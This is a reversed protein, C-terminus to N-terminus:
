DKKVKLVVSRADLVSYGAAILRSQLTEVNDGWEGRAVQDALEFISARYASPAGRVLRDNVQTLVATAHYGAHTLRDRLVTYNGWLGRLVEDALQGVTKDDRYVGETAFSEFDSPPVPEDGKGDQTKRALASQIDADDSPAGTGATTEETTEEATGAPSDTKKKPSMLLEKGSNQIAPNDPSLHNHYFVQTELTFRM